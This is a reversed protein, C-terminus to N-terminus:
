GLAIDTPFVVTVPASVDISVDVAPSVFRVLGELRHPPPSALVLNPSLSDLPGDNTWGVAGRIIFLPAKRYPISRPNGTM